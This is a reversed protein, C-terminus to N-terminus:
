KAPGKAQTPAKNRDRGMNSTQSDPNGEGAVAAPAMKDAFYTGARPKYGKRPLQGTTRMAFEADTIIGDSLLGRWFEKDMTRYAALESKPRLEIEDYLFEVTVDLGMLRVALTLVKSYLENLKVRVMGNVTMMFLLTDADAAGASTAGLGLISKPTKTATSVKGDFISKVTELTAPTDGNDGEIYGVEFYDYHVLAEEVGLSNITDVVADLKANLWAQLKEQDNAIEIPIMEQLKEWLISINYRKYVHRACLRRLDQLFQTSALVPQLASELPSQAYVDQLDPDLAVYFFTPIDLDIDKGGLRQVPRTGNGDEFWFIQSTAVGQLKFPLRSKDLVLEAAMAGTQYMQRALAESTSRLSAVHSFGNEYDPMFQLKRLIQLALRTADENFEGDPDRAFVMYGEPIGVRLHTAQSAAVEPSIRALGRVITATDAGQRFTNVLDVNAIAVNPKTIQNPSATASTRYSPISLGGGKPPKPPKVPPLQTAAVRDPSIWNAIAKYTAKLMIAHM